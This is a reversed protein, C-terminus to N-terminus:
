KKENCCLKEMTFCLEITKLITDYNKELTGYKQKKKGSYWTWCNCNNLIEITITYHWMKEVTLRLKM